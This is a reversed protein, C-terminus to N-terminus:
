KYINLLLNEQREWCLEISAKKLNQKWELIKESDNLMKQIVHATDKIDRSTLILGIDYKQVIKKMEPLNSVLVPLEAQIYDFLKNPLSFHYNLNTDEELSIGIDASNTYISLKEFPIRGFFRIKDSVGESDAIQKLLKAIDGDGIIVFIANDIYKMSKIVLEIGRGINLAGQYLIVKKETNSFNTKAKLESFNPYNNIVIFNTGYKENYIKAIPESVTYTSKLKPVIKKEIKLWINKVFKRNKLEPVETFYEHSDYIIKKGRIIAVLYNALLTDLDNSVLIDVKKFLLYFFLRLNYEVYFFPGKSFLLSMRFTKYKRDIKLSKSLKRGVLTVDYNHKILTSAVKHVRQDTSLDNIVSLIVKQM